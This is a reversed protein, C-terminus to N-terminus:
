HRAAHVRRPVSMGVSSVTQGRPPGYPASCLDVRRTRMRPEGKETRTLVVRARAMRCLGLEGNGSSGAFTPFRIPSPASFFWDIRPRPNPACVRKVLPIM